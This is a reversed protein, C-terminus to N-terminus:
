NYYISYDYMIIFIPNLFSINSDTMKESPSEKNASLTDACILCFRVGVEASSSSSSSVAVLDASAEGEASSSLSNLRIASSSTVRGSSGADRSSTNTNNSRRGASVRVGNLKAAYKMWSDTREPTGERVIMRISSSGMSAEMMANILCTTPSGLMPSKTGIASEIVSREVPIVAPNIRKPDIIRPEVKARMIRFLTRIMCSGFIAIDINITDIIMRTASVRLAITPTRDTLCSEIKGIRRRM